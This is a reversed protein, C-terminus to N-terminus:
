QFQLVEQAQLMPSQVEPFQEGRRDDPQDGGALEQDEREEAPQQHQRERQIRDELAAHQHEGGRGAGADHQIEGFHVVAALFQGGVARQEGGQEAHDRDRQQTKQYLQIKWVFVGTHDTQGYRLKQINQRFSEKNKRM